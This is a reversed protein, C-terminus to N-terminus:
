CPAAHRQQWAIDDEVALALVHMLPRAADAM